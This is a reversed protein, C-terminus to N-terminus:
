ARRNLLRGDILMLGIAILAIGLLHALGLTEGLFLWGLMIASIPVFFTVLSINTAGAHALVRFFLIYAMGTSFIGLTIVALWVRGPVEGGPLGDIALAFPLLLVSSCTVMGAATVVPDLKMRRFRRGFVNAFGYSLTAGLIAIQAWIAHGLGALTDLGIMVAVGGLGLLVGALKRASFREDALLLGSIVVTWLPTTANLISALGSPIQTQGWVILGFPIINNLAGMFCLTLWIGSTKPVHRGTAIVVLWLVMAAVILRITVVSLVPLATVSIAILFFSAGWLVSLLLLQAWDTLDMTANIEPQALQPGPSLPAKM